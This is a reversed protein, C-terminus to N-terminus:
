YESKQCFIFLRGGYGFGVKITSRSGYQIRQIHTSNKLEPLKWEDKSEPWGLSYLFGLTCIIKRLFGTSL